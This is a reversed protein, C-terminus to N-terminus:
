LKMFIRLEYDFEHEIAGRFYAGNLAGQVIQPHAELAKSSIDGLIVGNLSIELAGEIIQVSVEGSWPKSRRGYVSKRAAEYKAGGRVRLGYEGPQTLKLDPPYPKGTSSQIKVKDPTVDGLQLM